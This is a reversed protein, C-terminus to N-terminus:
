NHERRDECEGEECEQYRNYGYSCSSYCTSATNDLYQDVSSYSSCGTTYIWIDALNSIYIDVGTNYSRMLNRYVLLYVQRKKHYGLYPSIHSSFRLAERIRTTLGQVFKTRLILTTQHSWICSRNRVVSSSIGASSQPSRRHGKERRPTWLAQPFSVV